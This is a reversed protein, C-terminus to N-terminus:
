RFPPAKKSRRSTHLDALWEDFTSRLLDLDRKPLRDTVFFDEPWQRASGGVISKCAEVILRNRSVGRRKAVRDLQKLLSEPLHVSSSPM